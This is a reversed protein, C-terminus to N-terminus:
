IPSQTDAPSVGIHVPGHWGPVTEMADRLCLQKSALTGVDNGKYRGQHM